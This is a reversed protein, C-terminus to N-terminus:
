FGDGLESLPIYRVERVCEVPCEMLLVLSVDEPAQCECGEPFGDVSIECATSVDVAAQPTKDYSVFAGLVKGSPVHLLKCSAKFCYKSAVRDNDPTLKCTAPRCRVAMM